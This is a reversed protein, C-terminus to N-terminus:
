WVSDHEDFSKYQRTTELLTEATHLNINPVTTEMIGYSRYSDVM